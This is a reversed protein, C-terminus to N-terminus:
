EQPLQRFYTFEHDPLLAPYAIAILDALVLSPNSVGSEYIDTGGNANVRLDNNWVAGNTVSAFDAYREDLAVVDAVTNVGFAAPLWVQAELAAPYVVEFDLPVSGTQGVTESLGAPVSVVGVDALLAAVFSDDGPVYWVNDFPSGWLVTVREDAPIDATLAALENYRTAEASYVETALAELNYFAATFKIWEARGLPTTEMFDGSLAVSVGADLLAPHADYDAFGSGNAFVLSTEADIVAEVNITAGSGVELLEGAEAKEVIQPTNIFMFSDVAVLTDAIDLQTFHPLFTTSLAVARSIPVEIVQDVEVDEPMPVGCQVLAYRIPDAGAWANSVTIIKYHNFYEIQWGSAADVTIKDPFYDVTADFETICADTLNAPAPQAYGPTAPRAWVITLVFLIALVSLLRPM